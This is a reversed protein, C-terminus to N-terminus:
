FTLMEVHDNVEKVVRDIGFHREVDHRWAALMANVALTGSSSGRPL